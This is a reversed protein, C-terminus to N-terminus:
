RERGWLGEQLLVQPRPGGALVGPGIRILPRQQTLLRDSPGQVGRQGEAQPSPVSLQHDTHTPDGSQCQALAEDGGVGM